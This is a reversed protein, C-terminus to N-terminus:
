SWPVPLMPQLLVSVDMSLVHQKLVLTKNPIWTCQQVWQSHSQLGGGGGGPGPPPPPPASNTLWSLRCRKTVWQTSCVYRSWWCVHYPVRINFFRVAWWYGHVQCHLLPLEKLSSQIPHSASSARTFFSGDRVAGYVALDRGLLIFFLNIPSIPRHLCGDLFQVFNRSYKNGTVKRWHKPGVSTEICIKFWCKPRDM